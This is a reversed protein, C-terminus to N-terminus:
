LFIQWVSFQGIKQLPMQPLHLWHSSPIRYNNDLPIVEDRYRVCRWGNPGPTQVSTAPQLFITLNWKRRSYHWKLPYMWNREAQFGNTQLNLANLAKLDWAWLRRKLCWSHEYYCILIENPSALKLHLFNRQCTPHNQSMLHFCPLMNFRWATQVCGWIESNCLCLFHCTQGHLDSSKVCLLGFWTPKFSNKEHCLMQM